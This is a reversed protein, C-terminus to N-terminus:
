GFELGAPSFVYAPEGVPGARGRLMRAYPRREAFGADALWAVYSRQAALADVVVPGAVGALAHAALAIATEDDEAVLPGIHTAGRGDRGMVYGAVWEGARAVYALEPRRERLHALLSARGGGFSREDYAAIEVVEAASVPAIRVVAAPPQPPPAVREARLRAVELVERFGFRAYFPRMEPRVDLGAVAEARDIDALVRGVLDTAIGRGRWDAGVLVMSVWALPGYPLSVATAILRGEADFCGYAAGTALMHRWDAEIQSWGIEESLAAAAPADEPALRRVASGDIPM